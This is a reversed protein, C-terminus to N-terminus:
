IKPCIIYLSRIINNKVVTQPKKIIIQFLPIKNRKEVLQDKNKRKNNNIILM